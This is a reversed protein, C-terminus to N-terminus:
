QTAERYDIGISDQVPKTLVKRLMSLNLDHLWPMVDNVASTVNEMGWIAGRFQARHVTVMNVARVGNTELMNINVNQLLTNPRPEQHEELYGVHSHWLGSCNLVAPAVYGSSDAFVIKPDFKLPDQNWQFVDTYQLGIAKLARNNIVSRIVLEFWAQVAPWVESWRSYDQVVGICNETNVQLSRALTGNFTRNFHVPRPGSHVSPVQGPSVGGDVKIMLTQPSVFETLSLKAFGDKLSAIQALEEQGLPSNWELVFAVSQIAHSGAHPKLASILM